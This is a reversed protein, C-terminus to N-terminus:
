HLCDSGRTGYNALTLLMWYQKWTSPKIPGRIPQYVPQYSMASFKTGEGVKRGTVQLWHKQKEFGSRVAILLYLKQALPGGGSFAPSFLLCHTSIAGQSLDEKGLHQLVPTHAHTGQATWSIGTPKPLLDWRWRSFCVGAEQSATPFQYGRCFIEVEKDTLGSWEVFVKQNEDESKTSHLGTM